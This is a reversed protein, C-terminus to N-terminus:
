RRPMSTFIPIELINGQATRLRMIYKGGVRKFAIENYFLEDNELWGFVKNFSSVSGISYIEDDIKKKGEENNIFYQALYVAIMKQCKNIEGRTCGTTFSEM